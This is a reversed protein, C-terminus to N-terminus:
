VQRTDEWVIGLAAICPCALGELHNVRRSYTWCVGETECVSPRNVGNPITIM